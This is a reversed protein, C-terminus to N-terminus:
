SQRYAARCLCGLEQGDVGDVDEGDTGAGEDDGGHAAHAKDLQHVHEQRLVLLQVRQNAIGSHTGHGHSRANGVVESQLVIAVIEQEHM